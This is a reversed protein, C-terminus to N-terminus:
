MVLGYTRVLYQGALEGLFVFIMSLYFLATASQTARRKVCDWVMYAFVATGLLGVGVRVTMTVWFWMYDAPRFSDSWIPISAIAVWVIRATVAALYLKALHRLPAIPMDTDTLYRHGLLMAATVAGLLWAGLLTTGVLAATHLADAGREPPSLPPTSVDLAGAHSLGDRGAESGLLVDPRMVLLVAAGLVVVGAMAPWIRQTSRVGEGQGANVFLWVASLLLGAALCVAAPLRYVGDAWGPERVILLGSLFVLALSVSAMLRLYKWGTQRIMSVAVVLLCGAAFQALFASTM